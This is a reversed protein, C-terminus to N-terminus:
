FTAYLLSSVCFVCSLQKPQSVHHYATHLTLRGGGAAGGGGANSGADLGEVGGYVASLLAAAQPSLAGEGWGLGAPQELATSAGEVAPPEDALRQLLSCTTLELIAWM